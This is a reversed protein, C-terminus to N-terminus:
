YDLKRVEKYRELVDLCLMVTKDGIVRDAGTGPELYCGKHIDLLKEAEQLLQMEVDKDRILSYESLDNDKIWDRIFNREATENILEGSVRRCAFSFDQLLENLEMM